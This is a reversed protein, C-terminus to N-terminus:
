ARIDAAEDNTATKSSLKHSQQEIQDLGREISPLAQPLIQSNRLKSRELIQKLSAPPTNINKNATKSNDNASM